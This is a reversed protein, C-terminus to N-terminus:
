SSSDMDRLQKANEEPLTSNSYIGSAYEFGAMEGAGFRPTIVVHWRFFTSPNYAQQWGRGELPASKIVINYDPEDLVRNLRVLTSHLIDTLAKVEYESIDEFHANPRLPAIWCNYPSLAAFPVFAVFHDNVEIVRNVESSKWLSIEEEITKEYVCMGHEMFWEFARRQSKAVLHPVIPLGVIQAHPHMISAGGTSGQNKYYLIQRTSDKGRMQDARQLWAQILRETRQPKDRSLIRNHFPTEIVVEHDGVAPLSKNLVTNKRFEERLYVLGRAMMKPSVEGSISEVSPYKNKIVRTGWPRECDPVKLDLLSPGTLNENCFPCSEIYAPLSTTKPHEMFQKFQNPRDSRSTNFCVWDGTAANMRFQGVNQSLM